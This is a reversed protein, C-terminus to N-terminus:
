AFAVIILLAIFAILIVVAWWCDGKILTIILKITVWLIFGVVYFFLLLGM